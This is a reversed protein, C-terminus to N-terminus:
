YMYFDSEKLSDVVDCRDPKKKVYSGKGDLIKNIVTPYKKYLADHLEEYSAFEAEKFENQFQQYDYKDSYDFSNPQSYDIHQPINDPLEFGQDMPKEVLQIDIGVQDAVAEELKPMDVETDLPVMLGDFCLVANNPKDLEEFICM